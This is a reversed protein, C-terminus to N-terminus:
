REESRAEVAEALSYGNRRIGRVLFLSPPEQFLLVSVALLHSPIPRPSFHRPENPYLNLRRRHVTVMHGGDSFMGFLRVSLKDADVNSPWRSTLATCHLCLFRGPRHFCGEM